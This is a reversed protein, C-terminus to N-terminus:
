SSQKVSKIRDAFTQLLSNHFDLAEKALEEIDALAFTVAAEQVVSWHVIAAGEVFGMWEAVEGPKSWDEEKLYIDRMSRIKLATAQAKNMVVDTLDTDEEVLKKLREVHEKNQTTAREYETEGLLAIFSDRGKEFTEVCVQAFATVEGIKKASYENM